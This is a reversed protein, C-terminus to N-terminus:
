SFALQARPVFRPLVTLQMPVLQVPYVGLQTVKTVKFAKINVAPVLGALDLM